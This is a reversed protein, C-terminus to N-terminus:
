NEVNVEATPRAALEAPPHLRSLLRAPRRLPSCESRPRDAAFFATSYGCCSSVAARHLSGRRRM